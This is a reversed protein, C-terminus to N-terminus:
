YFIKYTILLDAGVSMHIWKKSIKEPGPTDALAPAVKKFNCWFQFVRKFGKLYLTKLSILMNSSAEVNKEGNTRNLRTATSKKSTM